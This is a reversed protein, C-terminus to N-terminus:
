LSTQVIEQSDVQRPYVVAAYANESADCFSHLEVSSLHSHKDFYCRPIYKETLLHLESRWQSWADQISSPVPDDWGVKSEWLQLIKVIDSVLVRKTINKLPSLKTVTLRFHDLSANWKIGLTKTYESSDPMLHMAQADILELPLHKLVASESSNWKRLLFGGKLFLDQLQKQLDIAEDISDAGILGDDVYFSKEVAQTAQPYEVAFDLANQKVSM